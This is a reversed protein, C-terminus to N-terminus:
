ESNIICQAIFEDQKREKDEITARHRVKYITVVEGRNRMDQIAWQIKRRQWQELTESCVKMTATVKPAKVPDMFRYVKTIGAVKGLTNISLRKPKGPSDRIQKMANEIREAYEEDKLTGVPIHRLSLPSNEEYWAADNLHLWQDAKSDILRLENRTAAPHENTVILWRERYHNRRKEFTTKAIPQAIYPRSKPQREPPFYGLVIGLRMVTRTDCQLAMGIRRVSIKADLMTKLKEHWLWGYDSVDIQGSYQEEKPLPKKRRYTFGCHPCVFTARLNGKVDCIEISPIVDQLYYDCVMNRCPYPPSGYPMYVPISEDTGTFFLEASGALFRM